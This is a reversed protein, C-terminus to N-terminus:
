QRISTPRPRPGEPSKSSARSLRRSPSHATLPHALMSANGEVFVENPQELALDSTMPLPPALQPTSNLGKGSPKFNGNAVGAGESATVKQGHTGDKPLLQYRKKLGLREIVDVPMCYVPDIDQLGAYGLLSLGLM